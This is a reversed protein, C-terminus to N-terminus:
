IVMKLLTSNFLFFLLRVVYEFWLFTNKTIYMCDEDFNASLDKGYFLWREEKSVIVSLYANFKNAFPDFKGELCGCM